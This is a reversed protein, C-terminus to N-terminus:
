PNQNLYDLIQMSNFVYSVQSQKLAAAPMRSLSAEKPNQVITIGGNDSISKIGLAGDENSGTVLIGTLSEKYVEAASLFLVDISPKSFQVLPSNDINLIFNEEVVIHLGPPAIYINGEEIPVANLPEIIPLHVMEQFFSKLTSNPDNARHLAIILPTSFRNSLNKFLFSILKISGASGGLVIAKPKAESM